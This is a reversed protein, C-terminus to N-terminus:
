VTVLVPGPMYTGTSILNTYRDYGAGGLLEEVDQDGRVFRAFWAKWEKRTPDKEPIITSTPRVELPVLVLEGSPFDRGTWVVSIFYYGDSDRILATRYNGTSKTAVTSQTM